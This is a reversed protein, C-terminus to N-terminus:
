IVRRQGPDETNGEEIGFDDEDDDLFTEIKLWSKLCELAEITYIGLRNRRDSITIKAGSFLREPDASMAPISLIDLAMKSLNPFNKQQTPELWWKYGQKVGTVQPQAIYRAYEDALPDDDDNDDLWKLYENPAKEAASTSSQTTSSSAITIAAPKYKTEWFLKMKDKAPQVWEPKWHKEIWKWKRGPHLVIGAVYAPTKDSLKYYKEMKAWGSNFMTAFTPADKYEDKYREFLALIYDTCPLSLDLTSEQSECAKTSMALKELFDKIVRVTSWEMDTLKDNQLDPTGHVSIFNDVVDRLAWAMQLMMFWSNWRTTNDRPIRHNCSLELFDHLRQTSAALFVLFNHLKGLPGKNRWEEIEKLTVNYINAEEDEDLVEKDTVFLFSKVALNIIHGQCRIRHHIPDYQLRFDRRLAQSLAAMMADNDPANDM